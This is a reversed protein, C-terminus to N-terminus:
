FGQIGFNAWVNPLTILLLRYCLTCLTNCSANIVEFCFLLVSDSQNPNSPAKFGVWGWGWGHAPSGGWSLSGLAGDLM